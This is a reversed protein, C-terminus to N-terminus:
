AGACCILRSIVDLFSALFLGDRVFVRAKIWRKVIVWMMSVRMFVASRVSLAERREYGGRKCVLEM